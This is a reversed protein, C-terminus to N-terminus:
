LYRTIGTRLKPHKMLLEYHQFGNIPSIRILKWFETKMSVVDALDLIQNEIQDTFIFLIFSMRWEGEIGLLHKLKNSDTRLFDSITSINQKQLSDILQDNFRHHLNATLRQTERTMKGQCNIILLFSRTSIYQLAKIVDFVHLGISATMWYRIVNSHARVKM